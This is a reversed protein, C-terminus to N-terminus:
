EDKSARPDSRSGLVYQVIAYGVIFSLFAWLHESKILSEAEAVPQTDLSDRPAKFTLEQEQPAMESDDLLDLENLEELDPPSFSGGSTAVVSPGGKAFSASCRDLLLGLLLFSPLARVRIAMM